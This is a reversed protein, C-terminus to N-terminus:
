DNRGQHQPMESRAMEYKLKEYAVELESVSM